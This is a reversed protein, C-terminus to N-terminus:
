FIFEAINSERFIAYVMESAASMCTAKKHSGVIYLDM